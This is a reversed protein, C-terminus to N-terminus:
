RPREESDFRRRLEVAGLRARTRIRDRARAEARVEGSVAVCVRRAPDGQEFVVAGAPFERGYMEAASPELPM